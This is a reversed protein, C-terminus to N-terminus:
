FNRPVWSNLTRDTIEFAKKTVINDHAALSIALLENVVFYNKTQQMLNDILENAKELTEREKKNM